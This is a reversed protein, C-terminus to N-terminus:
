KTSRVGQRDRSRVAHGDTRRGLAVVRAPIDFDRPDRHHGRPRAFSTTARRTSPRRSHPRPSRPSRRYSSARWRVRPSLRQPRVTKRNAEPEAAVQTRAARRSGATRLTETVAESRSSADVSAGAGAKVSRERRRPLPPEEDEYGFRERVVDVLASISLGTVVLGAILLGFLLVSSIVPGTLTVLLWAVSGGLYGGYLAVASPDVFRETGQGPTALAALSILALLVIGIGAGTRAERIDARVFFSIGWLLLGVPRPVRRCRRAIKLGSAAAESAIGSNRSVVAIMLAIATACLAVGIIDRKSRDDLASSARARTGRRSGNTRNNKSGLRNAVM